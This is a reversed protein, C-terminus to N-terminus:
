SFEVMNKRYWKPLLTNQCTENKREKIGMIQFYQKWLDTFADEMKYGHLNMGSVFTGDAYARHVYALSRKHDYIIFNEGPFRDAFFDCMLPIVNCKPEIESFLFQGTDSFRVFGKFKDVENYSKRALDFNRQVFPDALYEEIRPGVKFARVLYGFVITARDNSFHCLSAIVRDYITYGLKNRIAGATKEAKHIDTKIEINEAFLTYTDGGGIMIQINDHYPEEMRNKIVFGDYIATLMGEMSDECQLYIKTEM